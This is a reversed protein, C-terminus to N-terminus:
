PRPSAPAPSPSGGATRRTSSPINDAVASIDATTRGQCHNDHQWAPKPVYASCGSGGAGAAQNLWTREWWGRQNRARALTTGGAATVTTLNAPFQAATYGDDGSSAVTIHGPHDYSRAFTMALGDERAGYSNSIVNAGLRAATNRHPSTLPTPDKAEIVIIKCHPCAASIM